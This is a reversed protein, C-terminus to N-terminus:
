RSPRRRAHPPLALLASSILALGLLHTDFHGAVPALVSAFSAAAAIMSAVAVTNSLATRIM